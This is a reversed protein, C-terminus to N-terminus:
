EKAYLEIYRCETCRLGSIKITRKEDSKKLWGTKRGTKEQWLVREEATTEGGPIGMRPMPMMGFGSSAQGVSTTVRVLAEGELM